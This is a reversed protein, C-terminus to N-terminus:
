KLGNHRLQIGKINTRSRSLFVNFSQKYIILTGSRKGSCSLTNLDECRHQRLKLHGIDYRQYM